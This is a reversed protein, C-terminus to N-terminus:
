HFHFILPSLQNGGSADLRGAPFLECIRFVCIGHLPQNRM